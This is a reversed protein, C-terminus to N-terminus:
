GFVPLTPSGPKKPRLLAMPQAHQIVPENGAMSEKKDDVALLINDRLHIYSIAPLTSGGDRKRDPSDHPSGWGSNGWM